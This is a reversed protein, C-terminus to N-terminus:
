VAQIIADLMEQATTILKAAATYAHQYKILNAMEEDLSVASINDRTTSMQEQIAQAYSTERQVSQSEIGISGIMQHLYDEISTNSIDLSSAGNERSYTWEKIATDQYQLNGIKLSNTNDGPFYDGYTDSTVTVDITFTDNITYDTTAGNFTVTVGETGIAPTGAMSAPASWAGSDKRWSFTGAVPDVIQIEYTSDTTGTYPGSTTIIGTSTNSSASVANEVNNKITGAAIFSKDNLINENVGMDRSNSATFFTNLGLAALINSSDDSFAFTYGSHTANDIEMSLLGDTITANFADEGNITLNNITTTLDALTTASADVPITAEGVVSGDTDYLWLKFSGDTIRDSFDLGSGSSGMAVSTDTANYTGTLSSFGELGTGQSHVSNISWILSKAIEDLNSKYTPITEDRLDLWGGLKGGTVDETIPNSTDQWNIDTGDFNLEYTDKRSVLVFGKSTTVTLSGDDYEYTNIDLYEALNKVLSNRQDILDNPNGTTNLLLIQSNANAIQGLLQNVSDVGADISNNLEASLNSLDNNTAQFSQSLLVGYEALINREPMGSPNNNIDGWANWFENM